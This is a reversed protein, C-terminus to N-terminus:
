LFYRHDRLEVLEAPSGAPSTGSIQFGKELMQDRYHMNFEYRHRHRELVEDSGYIKEALTGPEIKTPWTGLRMSAGKNHVEQQEELLCIVPEPSKQDFETSNAKEMGCVNRAFEITAVQMGLCLGLYPLKNERAFRAAKIKGEVGRDGFGGPILVGAVDKLQGDVGDQIREADILKLDIGCDQSAAAHTLSEYISKYADQVDIYKGVVAIKVRRKASVVHEVLKRG